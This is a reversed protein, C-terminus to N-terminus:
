KKSINKSRKAALGMIALAFIALTSPEPVDTREVFFAYDYDSSGNLSRVGGMSWGSGFFTPSVAANQINSSIQNHSGSTYNTHISLAQNNNIYASTDASSQNISDGIATFGLSSGNFYWDAGNFTHTQNKSTYTSFEGWTIAAHALAINDSNRIGAIIIWDNDNLGGFVDAISSTLGANERYLYSWGDDIISDVSTNNQIGFPIIGASAFSSASLILGALAAKLMNLSM